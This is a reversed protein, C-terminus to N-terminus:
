SHMVKRNSTIRRREAYFIEKRARPFSNQSNLAPSLCRVRERKCSNIRSPEAVASVRRTSCASIWRLTLKGKNSGANQLVTRLQTVPTTSSLIGSGTISLECQWHFAYYNRDITITWYFQKSQPLVCQETIHVARHEIYLTDRKYCRTSTRKVLFINNPFLINLNNINQKFQKSLWQTLILYFKQINM